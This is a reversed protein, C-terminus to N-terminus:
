VYLEKNMLVLDIYTSNLKIAKKEEGYIRFGLKKYLEIANGNNSSVSLNIIEVENSKSFNIVQKILSQAIGLKRYAERVYMSNLTAVHKMKKRPNLVNVAIGVIENNIFAGITYVNKKSLRNIWMQESFGNEEEFCSGFSEPNQKLLELRINKYCEVDEVKLRRYSIKKM